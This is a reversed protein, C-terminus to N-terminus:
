PMMQERFSMATRVEETRDEERDGSLIAGPIAQQPLNGIRKYIEINRPRYGRKEYFRLAGSNPAFVDITIFECRQATFFSEMARFLASGAGHGRWEPRVILEIMKGRIPCRNTLRDVDDKEEMIGAALGIVADDDLAILFIGSNKEVRTLVLDLYRDPYDPMMRQVQEGDVQVLHEQLLILLEEAEKRYKIRYKRIHFM